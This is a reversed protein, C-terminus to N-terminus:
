LSSEKKRPVFYCRPVEIEALTNIEDIFKHWQQLLEGELPEDWEVKGQKCIDQFSLKLKVIFPSILGLPDFMKASIRLLSRKTAPLTTVYSVLGSFDFRFLDKEIDWNLGLIKTEATDDEKDSTNEKDTTKTGQESSESYSNIKDRLETSSTKWKRLNFGGEKM